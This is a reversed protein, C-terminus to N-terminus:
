NSSSQEDEGGFLGEKEELRGFVVGCVGTDGAPKGAFIDVESVSLVEVGLELGKVCLECFWRWVAVGETFAELVVEFKRRVDDNRPGRREGISEERGKNACFWRGVM